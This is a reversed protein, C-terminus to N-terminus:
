QKAPGRSAAGIVDAYSGLGVVRGKSLRLVRDCKVLTTTRHAIMIITLDAELSLISRMIAMETSDDVASTAEDLILVSARKYLARAIGIRQRQGGSLRIGREGVSTQYGEPLSSIFEDVNARMAADRVRELDLQDDPDGFAINAAISSDALFISQPVHAVQAQWNARNDDVLPNGDILIQGATPDLLGMLIDSLCSKGSGTEGIIGLREGKSIILSVDQLAFERGAYTFSARELKIERQFPDPLRRRDRPVSLVIPAKM